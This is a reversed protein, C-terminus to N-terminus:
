EGVLTALAATIEARATATSITAIGDGPQEGYDGFRAHNSGPIEVFTASSPLMDKATEIKAPTSLGDREGGISLVALQTQSLDSACYSGFLVLGAVLPRETAAALMCARVGGLSHGGVFWRTVGPADATFSALPRQDFLALNLTPKTIVVTAGKEVIGSLKYLYAYPDVKAGPIFVLGTGTAGSRPALVISHDTSTIVVLRDRWALLAPGREGQMVINAWTVLAVIGLLVLVLIVILARVTRRGIRAIARPRESRARTM